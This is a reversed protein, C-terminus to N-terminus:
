GVPKKTMTLVNRSQHRKYRIEDMFHKILHIGLGGPKCDEVDDPLDPEKAKLPNFPKGDDEIRIKFNDNGITVTIKILHDAHDDFGYSVINSFVEELTLNTEFICKKSVGIRQGIEELFPHLRDLESLDNKLNLTHKEAPMLQVDGLGHQVRGLIIL